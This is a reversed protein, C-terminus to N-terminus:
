TKADQRKEHHKIQRLKGRDALFEWELHILAGYTDVYDAEGYFFLIREDTALDRADGFTFPESYIVSIEPSEEGVGIVELASDTATFERREGPDKQISIGHWIHQLIGPTEIMPGGMKNPHM